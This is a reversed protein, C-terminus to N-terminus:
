ATDDGLQKWGNWRCPRDINERLGMTKM